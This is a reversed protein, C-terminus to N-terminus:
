FINELLFNLVKITGSQPRYCCKIVLKKSNKNEIEVTVCENNGNSVSLDEILKFKIDNKLFM